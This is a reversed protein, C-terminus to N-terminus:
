KNILTMMLQVCNKAIKVRYSVCFYLKVHFNTYKNTEDFCFQEIYMLESTANKVKCRRYHGDVMIFLYNWTMRLFLPTINCPM